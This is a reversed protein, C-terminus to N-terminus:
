RDFWRRRRAARVLFVARVVLWIVGLSTQVASVMLAGSADASLSLSANRQSRIMRHLFLYAFYLGALAASDFGIVIAAFVGVRAILGCAAGALLAYVLAPGHLRFFVMPLSPPERGAFATVPGSPGLILAGALTAGSALAIGIAPSDNNHAATAAALAGLAFVAGVSVHRATRSMPPRAVRQGPAAPGAAPAPPRLWLLGALAGGLWAALAFGAAGPLTRTAVVLAAFLVIPAQLLSTRVALWLILAPRGAILPYFPGDALVTLARSREKPYLWAFLAAGAGASTLMALAPPLGQAVLTDLRLLVAIAVLAALVVAGMFVVDRSATRWFARANLYELRLLTAIVAM